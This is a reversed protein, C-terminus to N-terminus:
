VSFDPIYALRYCNNVCVHMKSGAIYPEKLRM